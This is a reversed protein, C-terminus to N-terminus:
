CFYGNALGSCNVAENEYTAFSATGLRLTTRYRGILLSLGRFVLIDLLRTAHGPFSVWRRVRTRREAVAICKSIIRPLLTSSSQSYADATTHQAYSSRTRLVLTRNSLFECDKLSKLLTQLNRQKM